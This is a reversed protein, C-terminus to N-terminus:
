SDDVPGVLHEYVHKLHDRQLKFSEYNGALICGLLSQKGRNPSREISAMIKQLSDYAESFCDRITTTNKSGGAIDNSPNNPDIIM